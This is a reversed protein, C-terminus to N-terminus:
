MSRPSVASFATARSTRSSAPTSPRNPPTSVVTSKEGRTRTAKKTMIASRRTAGASHRSAVHNENSAAPLVAAYSSVRSRSRAASSFNLADHLVGRDVDFLDDDSEAHQDDDINKQGAANGTQGLFPQELPGDHDARRIDDSDEVVAAGVRQEIADVAPVADRVGRASCRSVANVTRIPTLIWKRLEAAFKQAA